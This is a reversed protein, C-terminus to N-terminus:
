IGSARGTQCARNSCAGTWKRWPGRPARRASGECRTLTCTCACGTGLLRRTRTSRTGARWTGRAAVHRRRQVARGIKNRAHKRHKADFLVRRVSVPVDFTRSHADPFLACIARVDAELADDLFRNRPGAAGTAPVALREWECSYPSRGDDGYHFSVVTDTSTDIVSGRYACCSELAAVLRRFMYGVKGVLQTSSILGMRGAAAHIFYQQLTMGKAYGSPVFADWIDDATESTTFCRRPGAPADEPATFVKDTTSLMKGLVGAMMTFNVPNGKAGSAVLHKMGKEARRSQEEHVIGSIM